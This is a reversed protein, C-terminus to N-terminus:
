CPWERTEPVRGSAEALKPESREGHSGGGARAGSASADFPRALGEGEALPGFCVIGFAASTRGLIHVDAQEARQLESRESCLVQGEGRGM